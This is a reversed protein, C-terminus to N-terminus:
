RGQESLQNAAAYREQFLSNDHFLPSEYGIGSTAAESATQEEQDSKGSRGRSFQMSVTKGAFEQYYVMACLPTNMMGSSERELVLPAPSAPGNRMLLVGGAFFAFAACIAALRIGPHSFLPFRSLRRSSRSFAPINKEHLPAACSERIDQRMMSYANLVEMCDLCSSFHDILPQKEADIVDDDIYRSILKRFHKCNKM